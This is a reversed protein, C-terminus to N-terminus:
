CLRLLVVCQMLQFQIDVASKRCMYRCPSDVNGYVQQTSSSCHRTPHLCLQHRVSQVVPLPVLPGGTHGGGPAPPKARTSKDKPTGSAAAPGSKSASKGSASTAGRPPPPLMDKGTRARKSSAAKESEGEKQKVGAHFTACNLVYSPFNPSPSCNKVSMQHWFM